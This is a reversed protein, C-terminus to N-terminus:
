LVQGPLSVVFTHLACKAAAATPWPMQTCRIRLRTASQSWSNSGHCVSLGSTADSRVSELFDLIEPKIITRIAIPLIPLTLQSLTACHM